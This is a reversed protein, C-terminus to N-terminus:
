IRISTFLVASKKQLTAGIVKRGRVRVINDVDVRDHAYALETAM